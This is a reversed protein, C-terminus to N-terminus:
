NIFIFPYYTPINPFRKELGIMIASSRIVEEFVKEENEGLEELIDVAMEISFYDEDNFSYGHSESVEEVIQYILDKNMNM